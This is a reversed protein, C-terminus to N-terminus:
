APTDGARSQGAGSGLRVFAQEFEDSAILALAARLGRAQDPGFAAEFRDQAAQWLGMSDALKGEGLPTLRVLRSRRDEPDTEIAVLGDRELPKLNHALASRDLVLAAALEGMTPAGARAIHILISRQTSRLGSSALVADYLQSVRRTAKRLATGNCLGAEVLWPAAAGKKGNTTRMGTGEMGLSGKVLVLM